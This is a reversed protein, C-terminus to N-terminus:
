PLNPLLSTPIPSLNAVTLQQNGTTFMLAATTTSNSGTGAQVQWQARLSYWATGGQVMGPQVVSYCQASKIAEIGENAFKNHCTPEVHVTPQVQVLAFCATGGSPPVVQVYWCVM